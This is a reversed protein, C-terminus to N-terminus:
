STAATDSVDASVTVKAASHPPLDLVRLAEALADALLLAVPTDTTRHDHPTAALGIDGLRTETYVLNSIPSTARMIPWRKTPLYPTNLWGIRDLVPSTDSRGATTRTGRYTGRKARADLKDDITLVLNNRVDCWRRIESIHGNKDGLTERRHDALRKAGDGCADAALATIIRELAADDRAVLLAHAITPDIEWALLGAAIYHAWSASVMDEVLSSSLDSRFARVKDLRKVAAIDAANVRGDAPPRPITPVRGATTTATTTDTM